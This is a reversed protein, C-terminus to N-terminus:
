ENVEVWGLEYVMSFHVDKRNFVYNESKPNHIDLFFQFDEENELNKKIMNGFELGFIHQITYETITSIPFRRDVVISKFDMNLEVKALLFSNEWSNNYESSFMSINAKSRKLARKFFAYHLFHQLGNWIYRLEFFSVMLFIIKGGNRLIRKYEALTDSTYMFKTGNGVFVVDFSNDNFPLPEEINYQLFEMKKSFDNKRPINKAFEIVAQSNDIGVVETCGISPDLFLQGLIGSGCGVDLVKGNNPINAHKLLEILEPTDDLAKLAWYINFQKWFLNEKELKEEDTFEDKEENKDKEFQQLVNEPLIILNERTFYKILEEFQGM